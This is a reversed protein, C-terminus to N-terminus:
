IFYSIKKGQTTLEKGGLFDSSKRPSLIKYHIIKIWPQGEFQKKCDAFYIEKQSGPWSMSILVLNQAKVMWNEQTLLFPHHSNKVGDYWHLTKPCLTPLHLALSSLHSKFGGRRAEFESRGRGCFVPSRVFNWFRLVRTNENAEEM